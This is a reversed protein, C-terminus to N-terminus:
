MYLGCMSLVHSKTSPRGGVIPQWNRRQPVRWAHMVSDRCWHKRCTIQRSAAHVQPLVHSGCAQLRALVQLHVASARLAGTTAAQQLERASSIGAACPSNRGCCAMPLVSNCHACSVHGDTQCPVHRAEILIPASLRHRSKTADDTSWWLWYLTPLVPLLPAYAAVKPSPLGPQSTHQSTLFAAM